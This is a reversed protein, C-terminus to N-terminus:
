SSGVRKIFFPKVYFNGPYGFKIKGDNLIGIFKHKEDESLHQFYFKVAGSVKPAKEGKIYIKYSKDTPGIECGDEIAKFLQDPSLSGCYNCTGDFRWYDPGAFAKAYPYGANRRGCMFEEGRAKSLRRAIVSECRLWRRRFFDQVGYWRRLNRDRLTASSYHRSLGMGLADKVRELSM